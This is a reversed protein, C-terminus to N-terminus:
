NIPYVGKTKFKKLIISSSKKADKLTKFSNLISYEPISNSDDLDIFYSTLYYRKDIKSKLIHCTLFSTNFEHQGCGEEKKYSLKFNNSLKPILEGSSRLEDWTIYFNSKVDYLEKILMNYNKRGLSCVTLILYDLDNFKKIEKKKLKELFGDLYFEKQLYNLTLKKM